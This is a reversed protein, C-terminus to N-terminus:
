PRLFCQQSHPLRPTSGEFRQVSQFHSDLVHQRWLDHELIQPQLIQSRDVPMVDNRHFGRQRPRAAQVLGDNDVGDRLLPASVSRRFFVDCVAEMRDAFDM